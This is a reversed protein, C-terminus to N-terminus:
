RLILFYIETDSRGHNTALSRLLEERTDVFLLRVLIRREEEVCQGDSLKRKVNDEKKSTERPVIHLKDFIMYVKLLHNRTFLEHNQTGRVSNIFHCM